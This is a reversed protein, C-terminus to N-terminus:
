KIMKLISQQSKESGEFELKFFYLGPALNQGNYVLKHSGKTQEEDAIVNIRDGMANFLTIRVKGNEPLSFSITTKDNIPNPYGSFDFGAINVFNGQIFMKPMLLLAEPFDNGYQDGVIGTGTLAFDLFGPQLEKIPTFGLTIIRDNENVTFHNTTAYVVRIVGEEDTVLLDNDDAIIEDLTPNIKVSTSKNDPSAMSASALLYDSNPYNLELGLASFDEIKTSIKLPIEIYSSSTLVVTEDSFAIIDMPFSKATAWDSLSDRYKTSSANYDGYCITKLTINLDGAAMTVTTDIALWNGKPFNKSTNYPAGIKAKIRSIDVANISTNNDVNAANRYNISFKRSPDAATDVGIYYKLLSVDIADLGNGSQMSDATYKDYSLLYSGNPVNTFQYNGLADSTDRSLEEGSTTKLIVIVKNIDYIAPNYSPPTSVPNGANAKGAYRVKGYILFKIQDYQQFGQTLINQTNAFTEVVTEGITFSISGSTNQQFDGDSAIIERSLEQSFTYTASFIILFFLLSINKKM